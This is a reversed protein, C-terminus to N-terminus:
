DTAVITKSIYYSLILAILSFVVATMITDFFLSKKQSELTDTKLAIEVEGVNEQFYELTAKEVM